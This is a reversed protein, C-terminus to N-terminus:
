CENNTVLVPDGSNRNKTSDRDEIGNTSCSGFKSLMMEQHQVDIGVLVVRLHTVMTHGEGLIGKSTSLWTRENVNKTLNIKLLMPANLYKTIIMIVPASLEFIPTLHSLCYKYLAKQSEPPNTEDWHISSYVSSVPSGFITVMWILCMNLASNLLSLRGLFVQASISNSWM